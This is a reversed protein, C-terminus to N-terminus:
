ARELLRKLTRLRNSNRLDKLLGEFKDISANIEQHLRKWDNPLNYQRVDIGEQTAARLIWGELRPCLIILRNNDLSHRLIKIDQELFDTELQAEKIYRPQTGDPDEDILAKSNTKQRLQNCIEGKGKFGHIIERRTFNTLTRVLAFDPYCEVFIM